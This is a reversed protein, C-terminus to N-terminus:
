AVRGDETYCIPRPAPVARPPADEYKNFKCIAFNPSLDFDRPVIQSFHRDPRVPHGVADFARAILASCMEQCECLNGLFEEPRRNRAFYALLLNRVNTVDYSRGLSERVLQVVAQRSESDAYRPVCLRINYQAYKMVPSLVVGVDEAEIIEGHGIYLTAHSWPSSTIKQIVWSIRRRGEVLLVDGPRAFTMFREMDNPVRLEYSVLEQELRRLIIDVAREEFYEIGRTLHREMWREVRNSVRSLIRLPSRGLPAPPAM